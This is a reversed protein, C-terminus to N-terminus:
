YELPKELFWCFIDISKGTGGTWVELTCRAYGLVSFNRAFKVFTNRFELNFSQLDKLWQDDFEEMHEGRALCENVHALNTDEASDGELGLCLFVLRQAGIEAFSPGKSSPFGVRRTRLVEYGM